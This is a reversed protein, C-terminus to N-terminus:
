LLTRGVVYSRDAGTKVMKGVVFPALPSVAMIVIGAETLKDVPFVLCLLIACAPVILNVAVLARVLLSPRQALYALDSSSSQVGVAFVLLLLSGEVILQVAAQM